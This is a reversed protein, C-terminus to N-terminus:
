QSLPPLEDPIEGYRARLDRENLAIGEELRLDLKQIASQVAEVSQWEIELYTPIGEYTDIDYHTWALVYQIRHKKSHGYRVFGLALFIRCMTAYDSFMVEYEDNHLIWSELNRIKYTLTNGTESKRLRVKNGKEDIFFDAEIVTDYEREAWLLDLKKIIEAPNIELFKIEYEQM